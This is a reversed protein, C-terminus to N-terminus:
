ERCGGSAAGWWGPASSSSRRRRSKSRSSRRDCAGAAGEAGGGGAAGAAIASRVDLSSAHLAPALGAVLAALLVVAAAVALVVGDVTAEAGAPLAGPNLALLGRVGLAALPLGVAGGAAALLLTETLLQRVLRGRGAGLAARVAMERQRAEARVLLLNAVNVSALVLLLAVAGLLVLMTPRAQGYWAERLPTAHVGFQADPYIEAHEARTRAGFTALEARAKELTAGPALRGIVDLYHNGRSRLHMPDMVLPLYLDAGSLRVGEPLVGVITRPYGNVRVTTGVVAPNAGFRTRWLSHGLVAVLEAGPRDEEPAFLRGIAARTGLTGFLSSTVRAAHLREPRGAGSITVEDGDIAGVASLSRAQSALELYEPASVSNIPLGFSPFSTTVTV